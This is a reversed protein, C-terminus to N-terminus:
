FDNLNKIFEMPIWTKVLIEAQFYMKESDTLNWFPIGDRLKCEVNKILDFKINRLYSIDGGCLRGTKAANRDSFKTEKFFAVEVDIQLNIPNIIRGERLAVAKMPHNRTFSLRVYDQENYKKDLERSWQDGGPYTIEIRNCDCFHRSYLGGHQKISKLNAKDTFHFLTIIENNAFHDKIDQWNDKKVLLNRLAHEKRSKEEEKQKKILELQEKQIRIEEKRREEILRIREAEERQKRLLEEQQRKLLRLEQAEIGERAKQFRSIEKQYFPKIISRIHPVIEKAEPLKSQAILIELSTLLHKIKKRTAEEQQKKFAERQFHKKILSKKDFFSELQEFSKNAISIYSNSLEISQNSTDLYKDIELFQDDIYRTDPYATKNIIAIKLHLRTKELELVHLEKSLEDIGIARRRNNKVEKGSTNAIEVVTKATQFSAVKNILENKIEENPAEKIQAILKDVDQEQRMLNQAASVVADESSPNTRFFSKIKNWIRRLINM